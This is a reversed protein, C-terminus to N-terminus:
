GSIHGRTSAQCKRETTLQRVDSVSHKELATPNFKRGCTDCPTLEGADGNEPPNEDEKDFAPPGTQKPAAPLARDPSNRVAAPAVSKRAPTAHPAPEPEQDIEEEDPAPASQAARRAPPLTPPKRNKLAPAKFGAGGSELLADEDGDEGLMTVAKGRASSRGGVAAAPARKSSLPPAQPPPPGGGPPYADPDDEFRYGGRGAAASPTGVPRDEDFAPAVPKAARGAMFAPPKAGPAVSPRPPRATFAPQAGDDGGDDTLVGAAADDDDDLQQGSAPRGSRYSMYSGGGDGDSAESLATLRTLSAPPASSIGVGSSRSRGHAGLKSKLLSLSGPTKPGSSSALPASSGEGDGYADSADSVDISLRRAGSPATNSRHISPLKGGGGSSSLSGGSSGKAGSAGVAAEDFSSAGIGGKGGGGVPMDDFPSGGGSGSSSKNSNNKSSAGGAPREDMSADWEPRGSGSGVAGRNAVAPLPPSPPARYSQAPAIGAYAKSVKPDNQARKMEVRMRALWEARSENPLRTVGGSGDGGDAEGSGSDWEGRDATPAPEAPQSDFATDNNWAPRRVKAASSAPAGRRGGGGSIPEDSRLLSHFNSDAEESSFGMGGGGGGGMAATGAKKGAAGVPLDDFSSSPRAAPPVRPPADQVAAGGGGGRRPGGGGLPGWEDASAPPADGGGYRGSRPMPAGGLPGFGGDMGQQPPVVGGARARPAGGLPGGFEELSVPPLKARPQFGPGAAGAAGAGFPGSDAEQGAMANRPAGGLSMGAFESAVSQQYEKLRSTRTSRPAEYASPPAIPTQSSYAGYGGYASQPQQGGFGNHMEADTRLGNSQRTGNDPFSYPDRPKGGAPAIEYSAPGYPTVGGPAGYPSQEPQGYTLM